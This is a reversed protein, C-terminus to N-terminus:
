EHVWNLDSGLVWDQRLGAELALEIVDKMCDCKPQGWSVADCNVLMMMEHVEGEEVLWEEEVLGENQDEGQRDAEQVCELKINEGWSGKDRKEAVRDSAGLASWRGGVSLKHIWCNNDM